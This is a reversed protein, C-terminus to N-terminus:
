RGLSRYILRFSLSALCSTTRRDLYIHQLSPMRSRWCCHRRSSSRWSNKSIFNKAYGLSLYLKFFNPVRVQNSGVFFVYHDSPFVILSFIPRELDSLLRCSLYLKRKDSLLHFIFNPLTPLTHNRLYISIKRQLNSSNSFRFAEIAALNQVM